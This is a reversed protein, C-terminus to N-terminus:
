LIVFYEIYLTLIFSHQILELLKKRETKLM